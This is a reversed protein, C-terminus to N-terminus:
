TQFTLAMRFRHRERLAPNGGCDLVCARIPRNMTRISAVFDFPPRGHVTGSRPQTSSWGCCRANCPQRKFIRSVNKRGAHQPQHAACVCGREPRNMSEICAFFDFPAKRSGDNPHACAFREARGASALRHRRHCPWKGFAGDRDGESARPKPITSAGWSDVSGGYPGPARHSLCRKRFNYSAPCSNQTQFALAM